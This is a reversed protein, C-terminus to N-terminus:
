DTDHEGLGLSWAPKAGKSETEYVFLLDVAEPGHSVNLVPLSFQNRPISISEAAKGLKNVFRVVASEIMSRDLVDARQHRLASM